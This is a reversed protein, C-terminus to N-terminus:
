EADCDSPKRQFPIEHRREKIVFKVKDSPSLTPFPSIRLRANPPSLEFTFYHALMIVNLAIHMEAWRIGLCRHTGLGFPAFGPGRHENRPPLYRDIDFKFPDPFVDEMYHPAALAIIVRARLPLDYGAVTCSNMVNRMTFSTIPTLRLAELLVRHTVDINDRNMDEGTPDGNAFLADAEAQVQRYIDPNQALFYFVFGTMDALYMGTLLVTGVPFGFDTEPLFQPENAHLAFYGDVVDPPRGLRQGPTHDAEVSEVIQQSLKALRRMKPTKLFFKPLLGAVQTSLAREKFALIDHVVDQTDRSVLLPSMQANMLVRFTSSARLVDGVDWSSLQQRANYYVEDFRRTLTKASYAPRLARRFKFHDAGDTSHVTRSVGYVKEIGALYEGSHLYLRGQRHVWHNVESGALVIYSKKSLPPHLEFVPGYHKALDAFLAPLNGSRAHRNLLMKRLSIRPIKKTLRSRQLHFGAINSSVAEGISLGIIDLQSVLKVREEAEEDLTLMFPIVNCANLLAITIAERPGPIDGGLIVKHVRTRIFPVGGGVESDANTEMEWATRGMTWFDGEHHELFQLRVLDSLVMDIITEARPALREIWYRTSHQEPEKAVEELILDLVPFGTPNKDHLFLSKTDTDIRYRLSLEALVAGIVTCNLSWGPVQHFYGSEENLLMLILEEPLSLPHNTPPAETPVGSMADM